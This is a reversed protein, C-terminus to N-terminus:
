YATKMRATQAKEMQAKETRSLKNMVSLPENHCQSM